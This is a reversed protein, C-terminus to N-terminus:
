EKLQFRHISNWEKFLFLNSSLEEYFDASIKRVENSICKVWLNVGNRQNIWGIKQTEKKRERWRIEFCWFIKVASEFQTKGHELM